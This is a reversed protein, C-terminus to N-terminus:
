NGNASYPECAYGIMADGPGWVPTARDPACDNGSSHLRAPAPADWGPAWAFASGSTRAAQSAASAPLAGPAFLGAAVLAIPLTRM